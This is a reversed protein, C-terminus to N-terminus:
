EFVETPIGTTDTLRAAIASLAARPVETIGPAATGRDVTYVQVGLPRIDGVVRVWEAVHAEDTNDFSGQMFLSQLWIEPVAKIAALMAGFRGQGFPQNIKRWMAEDAADFKLYREDLLALAERVRPRALQTADSLISIRARPFAADRLPRIGAIIEYLEPHVTPEGNGALTICDVETGEAALHAFSAAIEDLLQRAKKLRPRGGAAASGDGGRADRPAGPETSPEALPTTWGYQCYVCNSSCVKHTTPLLNIGLSAGFRRSRVPGYVTADQLPIIGRGPVDGSAVARGSPRANGDLPVTGPRPIIEPM